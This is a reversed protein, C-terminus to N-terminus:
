RGIVQIERRNSTGRFSRPYFVLKGCICGCVRWSIRPPGALGYGYKPERWPLICCYLCLHYFIPCQRDRWNPELAHVDKQATVQVKKLESGIGIPEAELSKTMELYEKETVKRLAEEM